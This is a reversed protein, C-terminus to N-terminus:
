KGIGALVLALEPPYIDPGRLGKAFKQGDDKTYYATTFANRILQRIQSFEGISEQGIAHEM